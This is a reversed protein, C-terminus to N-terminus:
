NEFIEWDYCGCRPPNKVLEYNENCYLPKNKESCALKLTGDSCANRCSGNNFDYGEPCGCLAPQMELKANENCYYPKKESCEEILTGDSCAHICERGAPITKPPCGCTEADDVLNGIIDCIKPKDASCNGVPTGDECATIATEEPLAQPPQGSPAGDHGHSENESANWQSAPSEGGCGCSLLLAGAM